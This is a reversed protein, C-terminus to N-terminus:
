IGQVVNRKQETNCVEQHTEESSRQQLANEQTM